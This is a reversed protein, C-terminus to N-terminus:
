ELKEYVDIGFKNKCLKVRDEISLGDLSPVSNKGLVKFSIEDEELCFLEDEYIWVNNAVYTCNKILSIKARTSLRKKNVAILSVSFKM